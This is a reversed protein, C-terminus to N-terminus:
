SGPELDLVLRGPQSVARVVAIPLAARLENELALPASLRVDLLARRGEFGTVEAADVGPIAALAQEFSGLADLDAFPGADITLTGPVAEPEPEPEPPAAEVEPEPPAPAPPAEEIRALV